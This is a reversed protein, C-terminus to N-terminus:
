AAFIPEKVFQQLQLLRRNELDQSAASCIKRELRAAETLIVPSEKVPQRSRKATGDPLCDHGCAKL